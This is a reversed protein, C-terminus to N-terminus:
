IPLGPAVPPGVYRASPRVIKAVGVQEIIHASWGISRSVSFTPTFMERPMGALELVVSAWFEVNTVIRSDPKWAALFGLINREISAAREVLEGGISEAAERLVVGRPDEARYVAHGFGMIKEGAEVRPRVWDAASDPDGIDDIMEICRSPAGGHLPGSLAGIGAVLAGAIDAGTSAVIRSTFTSANFGYTSPPWWTASL